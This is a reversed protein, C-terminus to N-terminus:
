LMIQGGDANLTQGTLYRGEESALFVAIPAIDAGPDGFRRLAIADFYQQAREPNEEFFKAASPSLAAPNIVNIRIGFEGWERAASRSLARIGEKGAGYIGDGPEGYIGQRTGFNIVSGGRAKLHPFAAQMHYLTGLLGSGLTLDIAEDTIDEVKAQRTAQANNVLIDLRGFKEVATAITRNADERRAVDAQVAVVRAGSPDIERAAREVVGGRRASVVLSAGDAVFAKAIALGIGQSCGTVVAVLGDLRGM